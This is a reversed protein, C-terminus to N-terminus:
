RHVLEKKKLTVAIMVSEGLASLQRRLASLKRKPSEEKESSRVAV